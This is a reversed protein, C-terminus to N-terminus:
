ATVTKRFYPCQRGQYSHIINYIEFDLELAKEFLQRLVVEDIIPKRSLIWLNCRSPHGVMVWEYDEALAIIYFDRSFRWPYKLEWKSNTEDQMIAKATAAELEGTPSGKYCQHLVDITSDNNVTYTASICYCESEYAMPLRAIEYWDGNIM